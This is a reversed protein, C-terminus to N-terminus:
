TCSTTLLTTCAFSHFEALSYFETELWTRWLFIVCSCTLWTKLMGEDSLAADNLASLANGRLIINSDAVQMLLLKYDFALRDIKYELLNCDVVDCHNQLVPSWLWDWSLRPFSQPFSLIHKWWESCTKSACTMDQWLPSGVQKRVNM